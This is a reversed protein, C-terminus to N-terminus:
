WLTAKMFGQQSVELFKQWVAQPSPLFLSPVIKLATILYWIVLVSLVSSLSLALSRHHIFFAGIPSFISGSQAQNISQLEEVKSVEYATNKAQGTM